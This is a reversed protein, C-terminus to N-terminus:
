PTADRLTAFTAASAYDRLQLHGDAVEAADSQASKMTLNNGEKRLELLTFPETSTNPERWLYPNRTKLAPTILLVLRGPDNADQWAYKVSYGSAAQTFLYGSTNQAQLAKTFAEVDQRSLYNQYARTVAQNQADNSIGLLSLRVQADAAGRAQETAGRLELLPAAQASQWGWLLSLLVLLFRASFLTIFRKYM